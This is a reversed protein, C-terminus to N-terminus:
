SSACILEAAELLSTATLNASASGDTGLYATRCGAARGAQVDTASDGIMWSRSLDLDLEAAARLLLGPKPKRCDCSEEIEHPCYYFAEIRAAHPGLERQLADEAARLLDPGVLGRAVGRQNSAVVLVYGCEALRRMGDVAEALVRFDAIQTVYSQEGPRENLTGDRDLFAARRKSAGPTSQPL